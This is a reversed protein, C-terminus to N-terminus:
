INITSWDALVDVQINRRSGINQQCLVSFVGNNLHKKREDYYYTYIEEPKDIETTLVSFYCLIQVTLGYFPLAWMKYNTASDKLLCLSRKDFDNSLDSPNIYDQSAKYELAIQQQNCILSAAPLGKTLPLLSAIDKETNYFCTKKTGRCKYLKSTGITLFGHKYIEIRLSVFCYIETFSAKVTPTENESADLCYPVLVSYALEALGGLFSNISQNNSIRDLNQHLKYDCYPVPVHCYCMWLVHEANDCDNQSTNERFCGGNVFCGQTFPIIMQTNFTIWDLPDEFVYNLGIYANIVSGNYAFFCIRNGKSMNRPQYQSYACSSYQKIAVSALASSINLYAYKRSEFLFNNITNALERQQEAVNLSDNIITTRCCFRRLSGSLIEPVADVLLGCSSGKTKLRCQQGYHVSINVYKDKNMDRQLLITAYCNESMNVQNASMTKNFIMTNQMINNGILTYNRVDYLCLMQRRSDAHKLCKLPDECCCHLRYLFETKRGDNKTESQVLCFNSQDALYKNNCGLDRVPEKSQYFQDFFGTSNLQSDFQDYFLRIHAYNNSRSSFSLPDKTDQIFVLQELECTKSGYLLSVRRKLRDYCFTSNKKLLNSPPELTEFENIFSRISNSKESRTEFEKCTIIVDVPVYLSKQMIWFIRVISETQNTDCSIHEKSKTTNLKQVLLQDKHRLPYAFSGDGM